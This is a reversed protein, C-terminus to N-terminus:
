CAPELREITKPPNINLQKLINRRQVTLESRQLVGRKRGPIGGLAVSGNRDPPSERGRTYHGGARRLIRRNEGSAMGRDM